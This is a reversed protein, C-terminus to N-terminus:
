MPEVIHVPTEYENQSINAIEGLLAQILELGTKINMSLNIRENSRIKTLVVDGLLFM